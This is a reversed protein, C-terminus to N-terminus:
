YHCCGRRIVLLLLNWLLPLTLSLLKMVLSLKAQLERMGSFRLMAIAKDGIKACGYVKACDKVIANGYTVLLLTMTSWPMTLLGGLNSESEIWGGKTGPKIIFNGFCMTSMAEIRHLLHGNHVTSEIIRYMTRKGKTIRCGKAQHVRRVLLLSFSM